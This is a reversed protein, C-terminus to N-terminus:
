AFSSSIAVSISSLKAACMERQLRGIGFCGISTTTTSGFTSRIARWQALRDPRIAALISAVSIKGASPHEARDVENLVRELTHASLECM